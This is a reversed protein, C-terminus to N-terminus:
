EISSAIRLMEELDLDGMLTYKIENKEWIVKIDGDKFRMVVYKIGKIAEEIVEGEGKNLKINMSHEGILPNQVLSILRDGQAYQITAEITKKNFTKIIADGLRFGEPVYAPIAIYFSSVEKVRELPMVFELPADDESASSGSGIAPLNNGLQIDTIDESFFTFFRMVKFYNAYGENYGVLGICIFIAAAAGVATLKDPVRKKSPKKSIHNNINVWVDDLDPVTINSLYDDTINRLEKDINNDMM